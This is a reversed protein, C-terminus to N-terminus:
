LSVNVVHAGEKGAQVSILPATGLAAVESSSKIWNWADYAM